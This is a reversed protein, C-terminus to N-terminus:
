RKLAVFRQCFTDFENPGRCYMFAHLEITTAGADILAPVEALAAELDPSGDARFSAKPVARVQLDAPDRGRSLFADRMVAVAAKIAVPDQIIPVWGDGYDAIRAVNKPSPALGLMLPVRQQAPFPKCYTRDFNVFQGHFSAPSESWLVRCARMQEDLISYRSEFPVDCAIYEEKQWGVGVGLDLRGHSLADLTAAQKALFAAPRLPAIVVGTALRIRSTAGAVAALFTLPEFWPYDPPTLFRGYPYRDTREGMVVHDTINVADIGHREAAVALEVVPAFDGGFWENLGYVGICVSVM